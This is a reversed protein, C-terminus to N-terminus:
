KKGPTPAKGGPFDGFLMFARAFAPKIAIMAQLAAAADGTRAAAEARELADFEDDINVKLLRLREGNFAFRQCDLRQAEVAKWQQRAQAILRLLEARRAETLGEGKKLAAISPKVVSEMTDHFRTMADLYYEIDHRQRAEMLTARVPELSEHAAKLENTKLKREAKRLYSGITELDARWQLDDPFASGTEAKLREFADLLKPYAKHSAASKEFNTLALAPVYARDFRAFADKLAAECTSAVGDSAAPEASKGVSIVSLLLALTLVAVHTHAFSTM